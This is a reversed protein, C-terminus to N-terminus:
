LVFVFKFMFEDKSNILRTRLDDFKNFCSEAFHEESLSIM